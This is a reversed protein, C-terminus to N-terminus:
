HSRKIQRGSIERDEEPFFQIANLTEENCAINQWLERHELIYIRWEWFRMENNKIALLFLIGRLFSLNQEEDIVKWARDTLAVGSNKGAETIVELLLERDMCTLYGGLVEWQRRIFHLLITGVNQASREAGQFKRTQSRIESQIFGEDEEGPPTEGPTNGPSEIALKKEAEELQSKLQRLYERKEKVGEEIIERFIGEKEKEVSSFIELLEAESIYFDTDRPVGGMVMFTRAFFDDITHLRERQMSFAFLPEREEMPINIFSECIEELLDELKFISKGSENIPSCVLQILTRVDGAASLWKRILEGAGMQSLSDYHYLSEKIDNHVVAEDACMLLTEMAKGDDGRFLAKFRTVAAAKDTYMGDLRKWLRPGDLVVPTNVPEVLIGNVWGLTKEVQWEDIDGTVFAKKPFRSEFLMGIALLVLHYPYGQTKSGFLDIGNGIVYQVDTEEWLIDKGSFTAKPRRGPERKHLQFTEACKRSKMDGEIEWYEENTGEKDVVKSTLTYRKGGHAKEVMHRMLPAPFAELLRKSETYVEEWEQQGVGHFNFFLSVFVGM